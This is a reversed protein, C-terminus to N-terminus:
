TAESDSFVGGLPGTAFRSFSIREAKLDAFRGDGWTLRSSIPGAVIKLSAFVTAPSSCFASFTRARIGAFYLRGCADSIWSLQM